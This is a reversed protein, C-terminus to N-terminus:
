PTPVGWPNTLRSANRPIPMPDWVDISEKERASKLDAFLDVLDPPKIWAHGSNRGPALGHGGFLVDPASRSTGVGGNDSAAAPGLGRRM